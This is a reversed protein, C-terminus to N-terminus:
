QKRQLLNAERGKGDKLTGVCMCMILTWLFLLVEKSGKTKCLHRQGKSRAQTIRKM